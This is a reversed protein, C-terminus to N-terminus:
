ERLRRPRKGRSGRRGAAGAGLEPLKLEHSHHRRMLEGSLVDNSFTARVESDLASRDVKSRKRRLPRTPFSFTRQHAFEVSGGPRSRGLPCVHTTSVPDGWRRLHSQILCYRCLHGLSLALAGPAGARWHRESKPPVPFKKILYNLTQATFKTQAKSERHRKERQRWGSIMRSHRRQHPDCHM